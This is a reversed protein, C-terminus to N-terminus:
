LQTGLYRFFNSVATQGKIFKPFISFYFLSVESVDAACGAKSIGVEESFRNGGVFGATLAARTVVTRSVVRVLFPCEVM